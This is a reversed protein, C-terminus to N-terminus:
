ERRSPKRARPMPRLHHATFEEILQESLKAVEEPLRLRRLKHFPLRLVMYLGRATGKELPVERVDNKERCRECLLGGKEMSFWSEQPIRECVACRDLTPALGLGALLKLKFALEYLVISSQEGTLADLLQQFLLFVREEAHDDELLRNVWRACRLGAMLREYDRKIASYAEVIDAQSLMKLGERHYYIFESLTLLELAADFRSETKRAGKAMLSIKGCERSLVTIIQDSEGFDIARTVFGLTKKIHAM